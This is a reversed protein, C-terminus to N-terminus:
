ARLKELMNRLLTNRAGDWNKCIYIGGLQEIQDIKGAEILMTHCIVPITESIKRIEQLIDIGYTSDSRTQNVKMTGKSLMIDLIILDYHNRNFEELGDSGNACHIWYTSNLGNDPLEKEILFVIGNLSIKEDEIILIRKM